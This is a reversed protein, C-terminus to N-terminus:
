SILRYHSGSKTVYPWSGISTCQDSGAPGMTIFVDVYHHVAEVERVILVWQLADPLATFLKPASRLGFPLAGDFYCARDWQVGQLPCYALHVLVLHYASKIDLKVLLTGEGLRKAAVAVVEVSTYELSCLDRCMGNNISSGELHSLDM